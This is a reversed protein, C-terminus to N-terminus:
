PQHGYRGQFLQVWSQGQEPFLAFLPVLSKEHLGVSLILFFTNILSQSDSSVWLCQSLVGGRSVQARQKYECLEANHKNKLLVTIIHMHVHVHM